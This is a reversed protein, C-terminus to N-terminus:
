DFQALGYREYYHPFIMLTLFLILEVAARSTSLHEDLPISGPISMAVVRMTAKIEGDSMDGNPTDVGALQKLRDVIENPTQYLLQQPNQREM